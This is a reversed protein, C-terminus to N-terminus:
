SLFARSSFSRCVSIPMRISCCWPMGPSWTPTDGTPPSVRIGPGEEIQQVPRPQEIALSPASQGPYSSSM